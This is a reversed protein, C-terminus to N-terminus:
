KKLWQSFRHEVTEHPIGKGADLQSLGSDVQMKFHLESIIDDISSHEPLSQILAIANEKINSMRDGDM